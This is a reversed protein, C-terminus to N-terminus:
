GLIIRSLFKLNNICNLLPIEGQKILETMEIAYLPQTDDRLCYFLVM